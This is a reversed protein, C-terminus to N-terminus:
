IHPLLLELIWMLIKSSLALNHGMLKGFLTPLPNTKGVGEELRWFTNSYKCSTNPGTCKCHACRVIHQLNSLNQIFLATYTPLLHVTSHLLTGSINCYLTSLTRNQGWYQLNAAPRNAPRSSLSVHFFNHLLAKPCAQSPYITFQLYAHFQYITIQM